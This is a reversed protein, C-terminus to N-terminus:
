PANEQALAEVAMTAVFQDEDQELKKLLSRDFITRTDLLEWAVYFRAFPRPSEALRRLVADAEELAKAREPDSHPLAKAFQIRAAAGRLADVEAWAAEDRPEGPRRDRLEEALTFFANRGSWRFFTRVFHYSLGYWDGPEGQEAKYGMYRDVGGSSTDYAKSYMLIADAAYRERETMEDLNPGLVRIATEPHIQGYGVAASASWPVQRIRWYFDDEATANHGPASLLLCEWLLEVFAVGTGVDSELLEYKAAADRAALMMASMQFNARIGDMLENRAETWAAEREQVTTAPRSAPQPPLSPPVVGGVAFLLMALM